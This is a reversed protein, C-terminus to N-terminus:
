LAMGMWSWTAGFGPLRDAAFASTMIYTLLQGVVHLHNFSTLGKQPQEALCQLQHSYVMGECQKAVKNCALISGCQSHRCKYTSPKFLCQSVGGLLGEESCDPRCKHCLNISRRATSSSPKLSLSKFSFCAVRMSAIQKPITQIMYEPMQPREDPLGGVPYCM